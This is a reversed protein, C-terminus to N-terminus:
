SQELVLSVHASLVGGDGHMLALSPDAIQRDGARGTMQRQMEVLHALAGGVGCHGFSLLGGHTNLPLTGELDFDGELARRPAEGPRALGLEELLLCITVTFSDYIGACTVDTVATNAGGMARGASAAAGTLILSPTASIHQFLSAQAAGIIRAGSGQRTRDRSVVVACGGDSIPCCDLMKLPAAIPRSALVDEVSIPSSLHADPHRSAHRRMLVAMEALDTESLGYEHMYRSAFLGYFAPITPGIPLEYGQHGVQALTDISVDRSQGTARNEGAVVLVHTAVGASVLEHALRVMAFGTAGGLQVSQNFEPNVGFYEAFVTSLMLHPFTTSYGCLLGDVDQRSLGADDLAATAARSMLTLTDTGEHKGFSTQGVGSIWSM